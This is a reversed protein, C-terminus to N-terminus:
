KPISRARQEALLQAIIQQISVIEQKIEIIKAALVKFTSNFQTTQIDKYSSLIGGERIHDFAQAWNGHWTTPTLPPKTMLHQNNTFEGQKTQLKSNCVELRQLDSQKKALLAYYYALSM